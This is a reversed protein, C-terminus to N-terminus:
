RVRIGIDSLVDRLLDDSVNLMAGCDLVPLRGAMHGRTDAHLHERLSLEVGLAHQEVGVEGHIVCLLRTPVLHLHM